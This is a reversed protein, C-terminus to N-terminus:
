EEGDTEAEGSEPKAKAKTTKPTAPEVTVCGFEETDVRVEEGAANLEIRPM